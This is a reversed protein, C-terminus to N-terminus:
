LRTHRPYEHVQNWELKMEQRWSDVQSLKDICGMAISANMADARHKHADCLTTSVIKVVVGMREIKQIGAADRSHYSRMEKGDDSVYTQGNTLTGDANVVLLRIVPRTGQRLDGRTPDYGYKRVKSEAISWDDPVDIDVFMNSPMEYYGVRKGGQFIGTMLLDPTTAYIAGDECLEGPWDQRRPRNKPNFNLAESSSTEDVEKWRFDHRRTVTFISDFECEVYKEVLKRYHDPTICPSTAQALLVVDCKPKQIQVFEQVAAISTTTDTSVEPSRRHVRAGGEKAIREIEDHDTSVWIEDAVSSFVRDISRALSDFRKREKGESDRLSHLTWYLLPRGNLLKINKLPIGKSGGRALILGVIKPNEKVRKKPSEM